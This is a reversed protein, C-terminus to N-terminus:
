EYFVRRELVGFQFVTLVLMILFLLVSQAAALGYQGNFYFQRYISFVIVNTSDMPGGKTM